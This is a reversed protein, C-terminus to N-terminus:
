FGSSSHVYPQSSRSKWENSPSFKRAHHKSGFHESLVNTECSYKDNGQGTDHSCFIWETKLVGRSFQRFLDNRRIVGNPNNRVDVLEREVSRFGYLELHATRNM